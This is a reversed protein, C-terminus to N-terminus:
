SKSGKRALWARALKQIHDRSDPAPTKFLSAADPDQLGRQQSEKIGLVDSIVPDSGDESVLYYVLVDQTQRDRHQRGAFQNHVAPSWDLEGFVTCRSVDQLGDVGAGSRLSMIMLPTQKEVFRRRAEEKQPATESGTYLVPRYEKLAEMWIEYVARHWGGLVVREGQELLLQVFAAVAPAKAIGTAQRLRWDLEASDKMRMEADGQREVIRAVLTALRSKDDKAIVGDLNSDVTHTIVQIEPLERGVDKRTRRLMLGSAIMHSGLEEPAKVLAKEIGGGAGDCWERVFEGASGLSGPTIVNMVNWIEGGYNYVPTASMGLRFSAQEAIAAAAQYKKTGRHRLEAVEDFIVCRIKGALVDCWGHLKAYSMLLVDPFGGAFTYPTGRKAERVTRMPAFRGFERKWQRILHSPAVVLAPLARKENAVAIGVITKGLGLDDGLLLSGTRLCMDAALAQYPRPPLSLPFTQPSYGVNTIEGILRTREAWRAAAARIQSSAPVEVGFREAMWLVDNANEDTFDIVVRNEKDRISKTFWRRFRMSVHPACSVRISHPTCSVGAYTM